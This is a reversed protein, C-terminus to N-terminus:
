MEVVVGISPTVFTNRPPKSGMYEYDNKVWRNINVWFLSAHGIKQSFHDNIAKHYEIKTADKPSVKVVSQNLENYFGVVEAVVFAGEAPLILGYETLDIKTEGGHDAKIETIINENSITADPIYSPYSATKGANEGSLYYEQMYDKRSSLYLRVVTTYKIKDVKLWVARLPVERGAPNDVFLAIHNGTGINMSKVKKYTYEGILTDKGPAIVVEDLEIAKPKLYVTDPIHGGPVLKNEYGICGIEAKDFDTLGLTLHGNNDAYLGGVLKDGKKLLLNAYPIERNTGEELVVVTQGHVFGGILSLLYFIKKM